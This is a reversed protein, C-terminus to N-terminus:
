DGSFLAAREARVTVRIGISQPLEACLAALALQSKVQGHLLAAVAMTGRDIHGSRMVASVVLNTGEKSVKRLVQTYM